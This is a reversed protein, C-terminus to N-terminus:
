GICHLGFIWSFHFNLLVNKNKNKKKSHFHVKLPLAFYAELILAFLLHPKNM